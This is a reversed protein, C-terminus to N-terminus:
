VTAQLQVSLAGKGALRSFQTTAPGSRALSSGYRSANSVGLQAALQLGHGLAVAGHEVVCEDDIEAIGAVAVM